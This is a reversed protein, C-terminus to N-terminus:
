VPRQLTSTIHPDRQSAAAAMVMHPETFPYIAVLLDPQEKEFWALTQEAVGYCVLLKELQREVWNELRLPSLTRAITNLALERRSTENSKRLAWFSERSASIKTYDWLYAEFHRLLTLEHPFSQTLSVPRFFKGYRSLLLNLGGKESVPTINGTRRTTLPVLPQHFNREQPPNNPRHM